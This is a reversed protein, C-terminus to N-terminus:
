VLSAQLALRTLDARRQSGTKVLIRDLSSRVTTLSTSLQAAIQSNTQGQAVLTVLERERTSLHPLSVPVAPQETLEDLLLLAYEAAVAATMAAGRQQADQALTPGLAQRAEHRGSRPEQEEPASDDTQSQGETWAAQRIAAEAAWITVAQPWRETAVCLDGCLELCNLLLVNARTRGFLEIGERLHAATATFRGARFDLLAMSLLADGQDYLAGADRAAALADACYREAEATAGIEALTRALVIACHRGIYGPISAQDVRQAQRLWAVAGEVNEVYLASTALWYLAYAEGAPDDLERAMALARNGDEAAESLRGLNALAGSRWALARALVPAPQRGAYADRVATFHSLSTPVTTGATLIGRWFQTAIWAPSAEAARAAAATLLQYGSAWRGRLLWWPALAIALRPAADADHDLAWALAQHMTTDEADLWRAAALEGDRTELEAAAQEAVALGYRALASAGEHEEGAEALRAAGFARLTELMLYRRRGDHGERPPALLSCDVLRLAARGAEAGAVDEAAGLTFPGPFVSISRFARKDQESLLQYSWELTAALSQHRAPALRDSGALVEAQDDLRDLLPGVGLAEVRAAALEIALPIGDLRSVLRGVAETNERNMTFHPDAQRARDAFLAVAASVDSGGSEAPKLLELPQLRYRTEGAVGILTRSTALIRVDDAASLLAASLAAVADVLHECNDLVLLVQRTALVDALADMASGGGQQIGLATAVAGPVLDPDAVGGLEALWAGDAFRDVVHRAVAGALRTKGVGGPGTVTVLRYRALLEALEDLEASRGVFSTLAAPFGHVGGTVGITAVPPGVSKLRPFQEQLGAAVLQYIREPAEIDKLRHFGLDRLSVEGPLRSGVLLRTAESLVVQGGHAAAAIRAAKHVDLGIYGDEHRIPEGSHLGMRVRVAVGGPWAHAALAQQATVCCRVAEAASQFVVFFSDGETGMERGGSSSFAARLLARQASLAEGYRDGLDNLLMTSGEIDSFLMTITGTPLAGM